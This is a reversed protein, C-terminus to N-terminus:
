YYYSIIFIIILVKLSITLFLNRYMITNKAKTKIAKEIISQCNVIQSSLFIITSKQSAIISINQNIQTKNTQDWSRKLSISHFVMNKINDLGILLYSNIRQFNKQNEAVINKIINKCDTKNKHTKSKLSMSIVFSITKEKIKM